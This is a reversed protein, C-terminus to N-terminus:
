TADQSPKRRLRVPVNEGPNVKEYGVFVHEHAMLISKRDHVIPAEHISGYKPSFELDDPERAGDRFIEFIQPFSLDQWAWASPKVVVIKKTGCSEVTENAGTDDERSFTKGKFKVAVSCTRPCGYLKIAPVITRQLASYSPLKRSKFISQM